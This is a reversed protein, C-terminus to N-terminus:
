FSFGLQLGYNMQFPFDKNYARAKFYAGANLRNKWFSYDYRVGALGGLYWERKEAYTSLDLCEFAPVIARPSCHTLYSNVTTITSVGAFGKLSHSGFKAFLYGITFDISKADYRNIIKGINEPVVENDFSYHSKGIHGFTPINFFVYNNMLQEYSLSVSSKHDINRSLSLGCQKLLRNSTSIDSPISMNGVSIELNNKQALLNSPIAFILAFAFTSISKM